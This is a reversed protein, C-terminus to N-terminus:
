ASQRPIEQPRLQSQSRSPPPHDVPGAPTPSRCANPLKSDSAVIMTDDDKPVDSEGNKELTKELIQHYFGHNGTSKGKFWDMSHEMGEHAM